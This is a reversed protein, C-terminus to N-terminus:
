VSGRRKAAYLAGDLGTMRRATEIPRGTILAVLVDEEMLAQLLEQCRPSIKAEEPNDVIPSLTGDIDSFLGIPRHTLLQRLPEIDHLEEAM